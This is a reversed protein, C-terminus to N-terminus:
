QSWIARGNADLGSYTWTTVRGSPTVAVASFNQTGTYQLVYLFGVPLGTNPDSQVCMDNPYKPTVAPNVRNVCPLGRASYSPLVNQPEPVFNLGPPYGPPCVTGGLPGCTILSTDPPAGAWNMYDALAVSFETTQCQSDWNLDLCAKLAAGMNVSIGSYYKNDKVAQQRIHQMLGGIEDASSRTRIVQITRMVQPVAVASVVVIIIMVILLEILTFGRQPHRFQRISMASEM